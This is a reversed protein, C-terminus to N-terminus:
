PRDPWNPPQGTHTDTSIINGYNAGSYPSQTTLEGGANVITVTVPIWLKTGVVVPNGTHDEAM